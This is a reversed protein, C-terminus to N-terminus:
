IFQLWSIRTELTCLQTRTSVSKHCGYIECRIGWRCMLLSDPSWLLVEGPMLWVSCVIWWQWSERGQRQLVLVLVLAASVVCGSSRPHRRGALARSCWWHRQLRWSRPESLVVSDPGLVVTGSQGWCLGVCFEIEPKEQWVESLLLTLPWQTVFPRARPLRPAPEEGAKTAWGHAKCHWGASNRGFEESFKRKVFIGSFFLSWMVINSTVREEGCLIGTVEKKTVSLFEVKRSATM